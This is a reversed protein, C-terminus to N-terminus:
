RPTFKSVTYAFAGDECQSTCRWGTLMTPFGFEEDFVLTTVSGYRMTRDVADFLSDITLRHGGDLMAGTTSDRGATVANNRVEYLITRSGTQVTSQQLVFDYNAIGLSRWRELNRNATERPVLPESTCACLFLAFMCTRSLRSM